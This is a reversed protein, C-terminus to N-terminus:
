ADTNNSTQDNQNQDQQPQKNMQDQSKKNQEGSRDQKEKQQGTNSKLLDSKSQGFFSLPNVPDGDKRIEFHAIVGAKQFYDSKGALGLKQGQKVDEGKEVAVEKLSSYVTTVGDGNDVKVVYGIEPDKEAQVVTGSMAATVPFSNGSETALNIGTNPRYTHDNLVLAAQQSELSADYDYFQKQVHVSDKNQVPWKFQEKMKNVPVANPNHNYASPKHVNSEQKSHDISYNEPNTGMQMWLVSAIVIAALGLYVAPYIWRKRAFKRWKSIKEQRMSQKEDKKMFIVEPVM